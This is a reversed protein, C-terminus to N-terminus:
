FLLDDPGPPGSATAAVPVPHIAPFPAAKGTYNNYVDSEGPIPGCTSNAPDCCDDPRTAVPLAIITSVVVLLSALHTIRPM